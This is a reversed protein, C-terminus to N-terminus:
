FLLVPILGQASVGAKVVKEFYWHARCKAIAVSKGAWLSCAALAPQHAHGSACLCFLCLHLPSRVIERSRDGSQQHILVSPQHSIDPHRIDSKQDRVTKRRAESLLTGPTKEAQVFTVSNGFSQHLQHRIRWWASRCLKCRLASTDPYKAVYAISGILM